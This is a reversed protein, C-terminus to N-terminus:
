RSSTTARVVLQRLLEEVARELQSDRGLYSEDAPREVEIDVPRPNREMVQGSTDRIKTRPMRVSSGDVLDANGTYIIWGATPEGVVKALEFARCRVTFGGNNNRVDVVVGERSENASHAVLLRAAGGEASVTRIEGGSLFAIERGDPSVGPEAYWPLGEGVSQATLPAGGAFWVLSTSLALRLPRSVPRSASM